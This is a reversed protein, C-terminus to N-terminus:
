TSPPSSTNPSTSFCIRSTQIPLTEAWKAVRGPSQRPTAPASFSSRVSAAEALRSSAARSSPWTAIERSSCDSVAIPKATKAMIIVAGVCSRWKVTPICCRIADAPPM